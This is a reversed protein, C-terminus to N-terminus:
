SHIAMITFLTDSNLLKRKISIRVNISVFKNPDMKSGMISIRFKQRLKGIQFDYFINNAHM